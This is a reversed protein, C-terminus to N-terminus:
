RMRGRKDTGRGGEDEWKRGGEKKGGEREKRVDGRQQDM